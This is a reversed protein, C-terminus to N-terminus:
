NASCAKTPVVILNQIMSSISLTGVDTVANVYQGMGAVALDAMLTAEDSDANKSDNFYLTSVTLRGAGASNLLSVVDGELTTPTTNGQNPQGDSMFIVAYSYGPNSAEDAAVLSQVYKFALDYDTGSSPFISNNAYNSQFYTVATEAASASGFAQVPLRNSTFLDRTYDWSGAAEAAFFSYNYTLNPYMTNSQIFDLASQARVNAGADDTDTSGSDDVIFIIKFNTAQQPTCPSATTSPGGPTSQVSSESTPETSFNVGSCNQFQTLGFLIGISILAIKSKV